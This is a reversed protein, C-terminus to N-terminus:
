ANRYYANSGRLHLGVGLEDAGDEACVLSSQDQSTKGGNKEEEKRLKPDLVPVENFNPTGDWESRFQLKWSLRYDMAEFSTKADGAIHETDWGYGGQVRLPDLDETNYRAPHCQCLHYNPQVSQMRSPSKKNLFLYLKCLMHEMDLFSFKRGTLKVVVSNRTKMLGLADLQNKRLNMIKSMFLKAESDNIYNSLPDFADNKQEHTLEPRKSLLGIAKLAEKSGPGMHVNDLTIEGFRGEKYSLALTAIIHQAVFYFQPGTSGDVVSAMADALGIVYERRTKGEKLVHGVIYDTMGAFERLFTTAAKSSTRLPAPIQNEYQHVILRSMGVGRAAVVKNIFAILTEINAKRLCNKRDNAPLSKYFVGIASARGFVHCIVSALLDDEMRPPTEVFNTENEFGTQSLIGYLLPPLDYDRIPMPFSFMGMIAGFKPNSLPISLNSPTLSLKKMRYFGAASLGIQLTIWDDIAIKTELARKGNVQIAFPNNKRLENRLEIWPKSDAREHSKVQPIIHNDDVRMFHDRFPDLRQKYHYWLQTAVIGGPMSAGVGCHAALTDGEPLHLDVFEGPRDTITIVRWDQKLKESDDEYYLGRFLKEDIRRLHFIKHQRTRFSLHDDLGHQQQIAGLEASTEGEVTEEGYCYFRGVHLVMRRRKADDDLAAVIQPALAEVLDYGMWVDLVQCNEACHLLVKNTKNSHTDQPFASFGWPHAASEATIGGIMAAGAEGLRSSSGGSGYVFFEQANRLLVDAGSTTDIRNKCTLVLSTAMLPHETCIIPQSVNTHKVHALQQMTSKPYWTMETPLVLAGSGSQLMPQSMAILPITNKEKEKNGHNYILLRVICRNKLLVQQMPWSFYLPAIAQKQHLIPSLTARHIKNADPVDAWPCNKYSDKNSPDTLLLEPPLRDHHTNDATDSSNSVVGRRGRRVAKRDAKVAELHPNEMYHLVNRILEDENSGLLKTSTSLKCSKCREEWAAKNVTPNCYGRLSITVRYFNEQFAFKNAQGHHECKEDLGIQIHIDNHGTETEVVGQKSGIVRWKLNYNEQSTNFAGKPGCLVVTVIVMDKPTPLPANDKGGM